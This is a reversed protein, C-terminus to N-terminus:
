HLSALRLLTTEQSRAALCQLEIKFWKTSNEHQHSDSKSDAAEPFQVAWAALSLQAQRIM